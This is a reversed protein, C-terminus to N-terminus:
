NFFFNLFSTFDSFAFFISITFFILDRVIIFLHLMRILIDEMKIQLFYRVDIDNSLRLLNCFAKSRKSDLDRVIVLFFQMKQKVPFNDLKLWM